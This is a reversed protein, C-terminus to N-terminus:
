DFSDKVHENSFAWATGGFCCADQPTFKSVSSVYNVDGRDFIPDHTDGGAKTIHCEINQEAVYDAVGTMLNIIAKHSNSSIGVRKGQRLLEGIIHKATYTKGAGPPGQICLYSNNLSTAAQIIEAMFDADDKIIDGEHSGVIRPRSRTLFDVIPCPKFDTELLTEIVGKIAAPIPRPGVFEDPLINLRNPLREKYSFSILGADPDYDRREIKMDEEGLV